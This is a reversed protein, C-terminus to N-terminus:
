SRNEAPQDFTLYASLGDTRAPQIIIRPARGSQQAQAALREAAAIAANLGDPAYSATITLQQRPDRPQKALWRSIDRGSAVAVPVSACAVEGGPHDPWATASATVAFLILSLDALAIQWGSGERSTM